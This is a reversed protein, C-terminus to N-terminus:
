SPRGRRRPRRRRDEALSLERSPTTVSRRRASPTCFVTAIAATTPHSERRSSSVPSSGHRRGHAGRHARWAHPSSRRSSAPSRRDREAAPDRMPAIVAAHGEDVQAVTLADHLHHEMGLVGGLRVGGGLAEAGLVDDADRARHPGAGVAHVVGVERGALDLHAGRRELHQVRRLRRRERDLIADLRALVQPQAVAVEVQASRLHRLHERHPRLMTRRIRSCRSASPKTSTSVGISVRECGRPSARSGRASGATAPCAEVRQRLRRLLQLLQQHDAPLVAVVLDHPAQAVLGRAGVAAELEGLEVHLHREDASSSRIARISGSYARM